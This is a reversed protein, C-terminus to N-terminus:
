LGMKKIKKVLKRKKAEIFVAGCKGEWAFLSIAESEPLVGISLINSTTLLDCLQLIKKGETDNTINIISNNILLVPRCPVQVRNRFREPKSRILDGSYNAYVLTDSLLRQKILQLQKELSEAKLKEVWEIEGHEFRPEQSFCAISICVIFASLFLKIWM